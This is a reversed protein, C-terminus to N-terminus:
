VCDEKQDARHRQNHLTLAIDSIELSADAQRTESLQSEIM